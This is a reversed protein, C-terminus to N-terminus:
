RGFLPLVTVRVSKCATWREMASLRLAVDVAQGEEAAIAQRAVAEEDCAVTLNVFRINGRLYLGLYLSHARVLLCSRQQPQLQLALKGLRSFM